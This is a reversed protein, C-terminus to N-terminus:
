KRYKQILDNIFQNRAATKEAAFEEALVAQIQHEQLVRYDALDDCPIVSYVFGAERMTFDWDISWKLDKINPAPLSWAISIIQGEEQALRGKREVAYLVWDGFNFRPQRTEGNHVVHMQTFHPFNTVRQATGSRTM